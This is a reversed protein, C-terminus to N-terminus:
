VGNSLYRAGETEWVFIAERICLGRVVEGHWELGSKNRRREEKPGVERFKLLDTEEEMVQLATM